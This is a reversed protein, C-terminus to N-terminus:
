LINRDQLAKTCSDSIKYALMRMPQVSWGRGTDDVSNRLVRNVGSRGKKRYIGYLMPLPLSVEGCWLLVPVSGLPVGGGACGGGGGCVRPACDCLASVGSFRDISVGSPPGLGLISSEYYCARPEVQTLSCSDPYTEM